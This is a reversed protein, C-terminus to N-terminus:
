AIDRRKFVQYTIILLVAITICINTFSFMFSTDPLIPSSFISAIVNADDTPFRGGGFYKFLDLNNLPLYKFFTTGTLFIGFISTVFLCLISVTTAVIHSKFITSLTFALVIYVFMKLILTCLYILLAIVPSTVIPISADFILLIPMSELGFLVSGAIMSIITSLLVFIMVFFMTAFIKSFLIKGRSYPRIALMKLTGNNQEGAIMNSGLVVCYVIILFSFLELVYFTFDYANPTFNSVSGFSLSTAYEYDAKNNDFLYEQRVQTQSYEYRNFDACNIFNRFETESYEKAIELQIKTSLIDYMQNSTANYFSILSNLEEKNKASIQEEESVCLSTYDRIKNNTEILRSSAVDYYDIKLSELFASSIKVDSISNINKSINYEFKNDNGSINIELIYEHLSDYANESNLEIANSIKEAFTSLSSDITSYNTVSQLMVPNTLESKDKYFTHLNEIQTLLTKSLDQLPTFSVSGTNATISIYKNLWSDVQNEIENLDNVIKNKPSIEESEIVSSSYSEILLLSSNLINDAYHKSYIDTGSNFKDYIETVTTGEIQIESNTRGNPMYFYYSFTIVIALLATMVFLSPKLLIKKLEGKFLKFM